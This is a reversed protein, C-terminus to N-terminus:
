YSLLDLNMLQTRGDVVLNGTAMCYLRSFRKYVLPSTKHNYRVTALCVNEECLWIELEASRWSVCIEAWYAVPSLVSRETNVLTHVWYGTRELREPAPKWEAKRGRTENTLRKLLHDSVDEELEHDAM